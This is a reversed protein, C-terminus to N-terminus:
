WFRKKYFFDLGFQGNENREAIASWQPDIAWEIRIIQPNSQTVDQIYVFTVDRTVQQELTMRAQPTNEAGTIQPDIKLKTVGFLRQLRGAVPNAVAQGLLTSAGMQTFNQEPAAPQRAALVPDTTHVKGSALLSIIDSFALPPDSTYTLKLRDMPGSVNLTVDVGAATTQLSVNLIPNIRQPNYFNATGVNLTYKSGFFVITGQTIEARGLMGPHTPSGRLNLRADMKINQALTTRFQIDPATEIRINFRMGGLLGTGASPAAPPAATQSLMSGIDTHSHMAVDTITVTGSATSRSTSGILELNANVETSVTAPYEVRVKKATAQVRFQMEPGGYRVAGALTIKGGGSEGTINDIRAETGNFVIAGNANTIGNPVDMMNVSANQLQLQGNVVPKATTGKVAASLVINGTSFIDADFAELIDLRVNGKARLDVAQSNALSATGTITLNTFPGTITASKVTVVSHNLTVVIPGANHLDFRKRPQEMGPAPVSHAELKTLQLEGRLADPKAVPGSVNAQGEVAADFGARNLSGLWNQLGSYTVNAFSVQATLPYDGTLQMRGNGHIAARAFDSNLKFDVANGNTVAAANLDGVPKRDVTLRTAAVNADLRSFLPTANRRLTAAGDAALELTGALGQKLQQVTHFQALQIRNSRLQFRLHGDQLDGPPHALSFSAEINSPGKALRFSSVDILRNSYAVAAQLTDFPEQYASGKSIRFNGQAHPDALTGSVRADAALTGEVPIDSRGALALVTEVPLNSINATATTAHDGTIATQGNVRIISGALDSNVQYNVTQGGSRATATLDGLSKGQMRLNHASVEANLSALQFEESGKVPQISGSADGNIQLRGGLGPRNKMLAKFQELAIQSSAVHVRAFGRKLDRPPHQYSANADIRSPGAVMSLTPVEIARGTLVVRATLSDYPEQWATGHTVNLEANGRPDGITGTIHADATLAGTVPVNSQGALALVDQMDAKRMTVDARLPQDPEPKWNRLGANATFHAELTGRSLVGNLVSVGSKSAALDADFRGFPRGDVSFNNMAVHGTINPASLSGKVTATVTAAGNHLTVPLSSKGLAPALDNLNHSNMRVHLERGISGSLDIRTSPLSIHSQGLDVSGSRGNYHATIRGSVPVAGRGPSIGLNARAVLTDAPAHLDGSAQVPGSVFGEYPVREGFARALAQLDFHHLDGALQFQSKNEIGARGTFSGGFAALRLGGLEIRRPDATVASDLSIGSLRTNGERLGVNRADVNAKVLYDNNARLMANGSAKLTGEPRAAVRFLQGLQGLALTANFQMSGPNAVDKLTGSAEVSTQGLQLRASSVHIRNEDATANINATLVGPANATDLPLALGAARKVEELAISASVQGSAHPSQLHDVAASITVQSGPTSLTADTLQIKDKELRVPLKVDVNVPASGGSQVYLPSMDIEGTYAPSAPNYFLQARLNQGKANIETKRGSFALLGNRLDFRGIALDVVTELGTKDSTKKVKPEPVNTHGDPYVILNAQPTDVLLSEIGVPGGSSFLKLEVEILKARFLPAEGPGELGHIIFDRVDARLHRPHFEFGGVDVRGGTADQVSSILKDRVFGRFWPTQVVILFGVFVILLLGAMSGLVIALIKRGRSM